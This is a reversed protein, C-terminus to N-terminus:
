KDTEQEGIATVVIEASIGVLPLGGGPHASGGLCYLNKIPSRNRARFFASRAGNSSSGYISGGPANVELELDAPTKIKMVKIRDRIKLGRDELKRIIVEAYEEKVNPKNWDFGSNPQHLPANVLITWAESDISPRMEADDPNCIYIAPDQPPKKEGFIADFEADYDDPFFVTHHSLNSRGSLGLMLTFGSFSPTAKSLRKRTGRTKRSKSLLKKYLIEADVNSIVIDADVVEDNVLRVGVAAGNDTIIEAVPTNIIIKGGLERVRQALKDALNGLGGPIHWAGFAEEVFAITLLVAPVKRPDSGTYTAYRDMIKTLYPGAKRKAVYTRMSSWPSITLLDKFLSKRKLLQLPNRLEGEVFTERSAEWMAQASDLLKHWALSANKGLVSEIEGLTKNHSLNPFTLKKGDAFIYTFAPDVPKLELIHELRKGTKLFLDRYVAPLTLLSPGTDFAFGEIRETHCKGGIQNAEFITVQHGAKALRAAAALGAMGAGVIVIRKPNNTKRHHNM